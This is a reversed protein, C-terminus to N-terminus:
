RKAALPPTKRGDEIMRAHMLCATVVSDPLRVRRLGRRSQCPGPEGYSRVEVFFACRKM